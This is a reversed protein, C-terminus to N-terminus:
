EGDSVEQRALLKKLEAMPPLVGRANRQVVRVTAHWRCYRHITKRAHTETSLKRIQWGHSRRDWRLTHTADQPCDPCREPM